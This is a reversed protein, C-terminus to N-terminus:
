EIFSAHPGTDVLRFSALMKPNQIYKRPSSAETDVKANIYSFATLMSSFNVDSYKPKISMLSVELCANAAIIQSPFRPNKLFYGALSSQGIM